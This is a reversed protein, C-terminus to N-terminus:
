RLTAVYSLDREEGPLLAALSFRLVAIMDPDAQLTEEGDIVEFLPAFLHPADEGAWDLALLGDSVISHPDLLIERALPAHITLDEVLDPTLNALTVVYVITEGPTIVSDELSVRLFVPAGDGDLVPAGDEAIEPVLTFATIRTQVQEPIADPEPTDAIAPAWALAVAVVWCALRCPTTVFCSM